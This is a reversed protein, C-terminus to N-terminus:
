DNNASLYNTDAKTPTCEGLAVCERVFSDRIRIHKTKDSTRNTVM